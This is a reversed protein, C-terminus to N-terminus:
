GVFPLMSGRLTSKGKRCASRLRRAVIIWGLGDVGVSVFIGRMAAMMQLAKNENAPRALPNGCFALVRADSYAMDALTCIAVWVSVNGNLDSM